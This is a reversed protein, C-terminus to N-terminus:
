SVPPLHSELTMLKNLLEKQSIILSDYHIQLSRVGPSLELIGAVPDTQLADMLAHVQFRLNLDIVAPGYEILIYKDGAQRYVVLPTTKSEPITALIAASSGNILQSLSGNSSM